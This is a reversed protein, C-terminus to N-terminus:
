AISLMWCIGLFIIARRIQSIGANNSNVQVHWFLSTDALWTLLVVLTAKYIGLVLSTGITNMGSFFYLWALVAAAVWPTAVLLTKLYQHVRPLHKGRAARVHQEHGGNEYILGRLFARIRTM